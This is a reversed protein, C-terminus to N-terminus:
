VPGELLHTNPKPRQGGDVFTENRCLLLSGFGHNSYQTLAFLMTVVPGVCFGSTKTVVHQCAPVLLKM